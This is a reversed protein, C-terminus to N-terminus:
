TVALGRFWTVFRLWPATQPLVFYGLLVMAVTVAFRAFHRREVSGAALSRVLLLLAVGIMLFAPVQYLSGAPLPPAYFYLMRALVPDLLPLATAAMFRAHVPASSRWRVAMLLAALFVCAMALPLYVFGGERAFQEASMRVVSRHAILVGSVAFALGLTVGFRGMVRHAARKGALLLLPQTVLLFLWLAGLVAHVHTHVEAEGLKGLYPPWFALGSLVLLLSAALPL